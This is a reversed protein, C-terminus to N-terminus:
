LCFSKAMGMIKGADPRGDDGTIPGAGIKQSFAARNQDAWSNPNGGGQTRQQGAQPNKLYNPFQVGVQPNQYM